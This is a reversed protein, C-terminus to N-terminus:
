APEEDGRTIVVEVLTTNGTHESVGYWTDFLGDPSYRMDEVDADTFNIVVKEPKMTLKPYVKYWHSLEDIVQLTIKEIEISGVQTNNSTLNYRM